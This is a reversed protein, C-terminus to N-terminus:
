GIQYRNLIGLSRPVKKPTHATHQKFDLNQDIFVGVFKTYLVRELIINDLIVQFLSMNYLKNKSGFLIYNCKKINVSLM